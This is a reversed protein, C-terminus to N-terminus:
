KIITERYWRVFNNIGVEISTSPQFGTDHILDNIDAYTALVDGAQMPLFNKQAKKGMAAEIVEIFTLLEVPKNNGINYIKYPPNNNAQPPNNSVRVVGEIIDDIYTFDRQLKGFNYVDIPRDRDIAEVFKYYAMDPRGWAGYVTFFRLGTIPIQYLHSYCHAMLENAKKTAAYFSIPRDVNDEVAFPIKTNAGYVSSSSAFVLHQVGSHRCGELINTFGVLNSDAYAHPNTISYRVGAQAALHIVRDFKQQQFLESMAGRDGIDLYKFTFNTHPLLNDLRAKKLNVDYYDNLNDIGYVQKGEQLLRQALHYGIFGAVGTILIKM